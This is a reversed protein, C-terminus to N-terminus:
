VHKNMKHLKVIYNEKIITGSTNQTVSVTVMVTKTSTKKVFKLLEANLLIKMGYSELLVFLQVHWHMVMCVFQVMLMVCVDKWKKMGIVMVWTVCPNAQLLKVDTSVM